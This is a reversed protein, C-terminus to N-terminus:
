DHKLLKLLDHDKKFPIRTVYREGNFVIDRVLQNVVCEDFPFRSIKQKLDENEELTQEVTSRM